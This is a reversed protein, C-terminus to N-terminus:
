WAQRDMDAETRLFEQYGALMESTGRGPLRTIRITVRGGQVRSSCVAVPVRLREALRIPQAAAAGDYSDPTVFVVYGADLRRAVTRLMTLAPRSRIAEIGRRHDPAVNFPDAAVFAARWGRRTLEPRVLRNTLIAHRALVLVPPALCEVGHSPFPPLDVGGELACLVVRDLAKELRM